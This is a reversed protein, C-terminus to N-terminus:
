NPKVPAPKGFKAADIPVNIQAESLQIADRGGLWAILIRFPMKIGNVDRYDGYDIQTPTRGIAGKSFRVVRVLLGTEQDFYLTAFSGRPGSGQVVNVLRDQGVADGGSQNTQSSPGPLDSIATPISVRLDGLVQKIQAPFSLQADLQEGDLEGGTLQFESLITLPSRIWGEHGNFARISEGRGTGPFEIITARKDPFQAYIEVKGGGGFGGFSVSIGKAAFSKLGALKDAGGLAQLYKDIIATAAPQGPAQSLVDDMEQSGTGYVAELTPTTSPHDRGHHCSWCTVKQRNSFNDRNIANMMTVMRRAILKRPTDAAWDVKVTGAGSHCESCDIGLAASMIGMTGLFDDVSIGKLVQINKFVQESTPQKIAVAPKASATKPPAAKQAILASGSSWLITLIALSLILKLSRNM